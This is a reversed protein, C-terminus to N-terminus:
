RTLMKRWYSSNLLAFNELRGPILSPNQKVLLAWEQYVELKLDVLSYENKM